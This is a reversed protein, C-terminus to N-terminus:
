ICFPVFELAGQNLTGNYGVETAFDDFDGRSRLWYLANGLAGAVVVSWVGYKEGYLTTTVARGADIKNKDSSFGYAPNSYSNDSNIVNTILIDSREEESFANALFNDSSYDTGEKNAEPGYGNLWSRLTCTEWTVDTCTNNYRQCDLVQDALLFADDGDVSLVRWKIPQREDNRDVMYDGNTDYM